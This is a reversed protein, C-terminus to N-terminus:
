QKSKEQRWEVFSDLISPWCSTEDYEECELLEDDREGDDTEGAALDFWLTSGAEAYPAAGLTSAAGAAGAAGGYSNCRRACGRFLECLTLQRGSRFGYEHLCAQRRRPAAWRQGSSDGTRGQM